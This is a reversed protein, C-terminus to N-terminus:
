TYSSDSSVPLKEKSPNITSYFTRSGICDIDGGGGVEKGDMEEKEEMEM